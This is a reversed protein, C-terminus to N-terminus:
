RVLEKKMNIFEEESILKKELMKSLELIELTINRKKDEEKEIFVEPEEPVNFAEVKLGDLTVQVQIYTKSNTPSKLTWITADDRSVLTYGHKLYQESLSKKADRFHNAEYDKLEIIYTNNRFKRTVGKKSAKIPTDRQSKSLLLILVGVILLAGSTVLLTQQQSMLHLNVVRTESNVWVTVDMGLSYLGLLIALVILVIGFIKM